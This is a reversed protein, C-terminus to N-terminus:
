LVINVYDLLPAIGVPVPHEFSARMQKGTLLFLPVQFETTEADDVLINWSKAINTYL